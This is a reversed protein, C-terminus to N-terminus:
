NTRVKLLMGPEERVGKSALYIEGSPTFTIGEPQIIKTKDMDLLDRINESMRMRLLQGRTGDIIYLQNTKPNIDLDSPQFVAQLNKPQLNKFVTDKLDIRIAPKVAMTKTVLNFAYIAKFSQNGEEAGRVTVLLRKNKRDYCLGNLNEEVTLHTGYEKMEPKGGNFHQIELIRGDACAVYATSGILELGEYDGPPGFPIEKDVQGTHLNFIFLSGVEEQLCALKGRQYYDIASINKLSEPLEWTHTINIAGASGGPMITDAFSNQVDYPLPVQDGVRFTWM